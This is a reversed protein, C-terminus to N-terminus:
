RKGWKVEIINNIVGIVEDPSYYDSDSYMIVDNRADTIVVRGKGNHKVKLGMVVFEGSKILIDNPIISTMNLKHLPNINM